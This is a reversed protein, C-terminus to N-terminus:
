DIAELLARIAGLRAAYHRARGSSRRYIPERVQWVSATKLVRQAPDAALCREDWEIDLSALLRPAAVEPAAVLRDYDFEVIDDGFLEKWHKMLRRYERYYHGIDELDLAYGLRPDLHLFFISLCNDLPDRTTHVIKADPFMWKILGIHLFNDPRKDVVYNARPAIQALRTRYGEAHAALQAPSLMAAAEPYPALLGTALRPLYDVEGGAGIRPHGALIQETLSSGSRFMGCVFIPKPDARARAPERRAGFTAILRDVFREHSARDYSAAGAPLSARSDRNAAAYTEFAAEYSGTADLARGLAFGLSARSAADIDLRAIAARLRAILPDDPATFARLNALRALAQAHAPELSLIREYAAVASDRRGLDEHLNGLNLWAPLYQLNLELAIGLEREADDYQRLDDAYIVGRNLHAEEPRELGHDVARRYSELAADFQMASRELAALRYWCIAIQPWRDLVRHYAAIAEIVRGERDLRLAAQVMANPDDPTM